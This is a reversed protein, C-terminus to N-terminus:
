AKTCDSGPRRSTFSMVIKRSQVTALGHTWPPAARRQGARLSYVGLDHNRNDLVPDGIRPDPTRVKEPAGIAMPGYRVCPNRAIGTGHTVSKPRVPQPTTGTQM